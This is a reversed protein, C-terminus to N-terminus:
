QGRAEVFRWQARLAQILDSALLGREGDRAAWDAAAAHLCVGATAAQELDREHIPHEIPKQALVQALLGGIIGTLADGMGGSAMGPNGASCLAPASQGPGSVLTGAGKLVAVGGYRQQLANVAAFRDQEIEVTTCGRLRAAEGPHPTLIWHERQLPREALLNLADADLVLARQAIVEGRMLQEFLARGWQDRGLGPGLAVVNVRELLPALQDPSRVAAVMLEPRTLNLLAAHEPHTAVTVLGAGARLAAEGAL